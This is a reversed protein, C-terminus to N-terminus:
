EENIRTELELLRARLEALEQEVSNTTALTTADRGVTIGGPMAESLLEPDSVLQSAVIGYANEIYVLSLTRDGVSGSGNASAMEGLMYFTNSGASVPYIAHSTVPITFLGTPTSFPIQTTITQNNPMSLSNDSTGILAYTPNGTVHSIFLHCSAIALVYGDDPCNISVQVLNDITGPGTLGGSTIGKQSAVGPEAGGGGGGTSSIEIDNGVPTVTINAGATINVNNRLGNLSRVVTNNAIKSATIADDEVTRAIQSYPAGALETRPTMEPDAGVTLGLWYPDEFSLLSLPSLSGLIVEFRGNTVTVNKTEIWLMTGGSAADYIRFSMLYNGDPVINGMDDTLVAQYSMTRPPTADAVGAVIVIMLVAILTKM